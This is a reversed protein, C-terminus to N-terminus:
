VARINGRGKNVVMKAEQVMEMKQTQPKENGGRDNM